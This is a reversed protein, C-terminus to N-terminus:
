KKLTLAGTRVASFLAHRMRSQTKSTSFGLAKAAQIATVEHRAYAIALEIMEPNAESANHAKSVVIAQAKTLLSM